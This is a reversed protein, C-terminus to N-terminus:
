KGILPKIFTHYLFNASQIVLAGLVYWNKAKAAEIADTTIDTLQGAAAADPVVAFVGAVGTIITLITAWFNVSKFASKTPVTKTTNSM